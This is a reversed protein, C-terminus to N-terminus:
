AEHYALVKEIIKSVSDLKGMEEESFQINFEDELAFIVEIHKLSDWQDTNKRSSDLSLECKLIVALTALVITELQQRNM